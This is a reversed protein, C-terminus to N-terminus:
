KTCGWAEMMGALKRKCCRRNQNQEYYTAWRCNDPSYGKDNDKRDITLHDAYGHTIAWNFFADFGGPRRWEDCVAIGRDFYIYAKKNNQRCRNNMGSWIRYIRTRSKGHTPKFRTREGCAVFRKNACERCSTTHGSTLHITSVRTEAGCECRCLWLVNKGSKDRGDQRIVTLQGFRRGTLDYRIM